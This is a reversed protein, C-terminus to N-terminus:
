SWKLVFFTLDAHTKFKIYRDAWNKTQKYTANFKSLQYEFNEDYPNRGSKWDTTDKVHQLFKAWYPEFVPREDFQGYQDFYREYRIVLDKLKIVCDNPRIAMNHAFCHGYRLRKWTM